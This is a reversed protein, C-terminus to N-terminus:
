NTDNAVEKNSEKVAKTILAVGKMSVLPVVYHQVIRGHQDVRPKIGLKFCGNDVYQQYPINGEMMYGEKRLLAFLRTRGITSEMSKAVVLMEFWEKGNAIEAVEM